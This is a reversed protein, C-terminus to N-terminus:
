SVYTYVRKKTEALQEEKTKTAIIQLKRRNKAQVRWENYIANCIDTTSEFTNQLITCSSPYTGVSMSYQSQSKAGHDSRKKTVSWGLDSVNIM